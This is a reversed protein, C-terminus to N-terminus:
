SMNKARHLSSDVMQCLRTSNRKSIETQSAQCHFLFCFNHLTPLIRTWNSATQPGFNTDNQSSTYSFGQLRYNYVCKGPQRYWTENRLYLGNFNGHLQSITLFTTKPDGTQLPLTYEMNRVHIKLDCKSGLM